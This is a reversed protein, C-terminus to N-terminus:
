VQKVEPRMLGYGKNVTENFGEVIGNTAQLVDRLVYMDFKETKRPKAESKVRINLNFNM